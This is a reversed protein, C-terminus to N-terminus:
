PSKATSNRITLASSKASAGEGLRDRIEFRGITPSAALPPLTKTENPLPLTESTATPLDLTVATDTKLPESEIPM